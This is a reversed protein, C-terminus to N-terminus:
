PGIRLITNVSRLPPKRFCPYLSGEFLNSNLFQFETAMTLFGDQKTCTWTKYAVHLKKVAILLSKLARSRELHTRSPGLYVILGGARDVSPFDM